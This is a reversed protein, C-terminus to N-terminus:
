TRVKGVFGVITLVLLVAKKQPQLDVDDTGALYILRYLEVPWSLMLLHAATALRTRWVAAAFLLIPINFEARYFLNPVSILALVILLIEARVM